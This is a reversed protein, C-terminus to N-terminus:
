GDLTLNIEVVVSMTEDSDPNENVMEMYFIKSQQKNNNDHCNLFQKIDILTTKDSNANQYHHNVCKLFSFYLLKEHLALCEKIEM